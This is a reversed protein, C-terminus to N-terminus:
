RNCTLRLDSPVPFSPGLDRRAAFVQSARPCDCERSRPARNYEHRRAHRQDERCRRDTDSAAARNKDLLYRDAGVDGQSDARSVANITTADWPGLLLENGAPQAPQNSWRPRLSHRQSNDPASFSFKQPFGWSSAREWANTRECYSSYPHFCASQFLTAHIPKLECIM